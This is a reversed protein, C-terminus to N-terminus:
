VRDAKSLTSRLLRVTSDLTFPETGHEAISIEDVNRCNGQIIENHMATRNGAQYLDVYFPRLVFDQPASFLKKGAMLRDQDSLNVVLGGLM